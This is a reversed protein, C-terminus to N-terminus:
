FTTLTLNSLNKNLYKAIDKAKNIDTGEPLDFGLFGEEPLTISKNLPELAIFPTGNSFEKVTFVYKARETKAM